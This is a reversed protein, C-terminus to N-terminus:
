VVDNFAVNNAHPSSLPLTGNEANLQSDHYTVSLDPDGGTIDLDADTLNFVYFGDNDDDCEILPLPNNPIPLSDVEILVNQSSDFCNINDVRELRIYITESPATVAYPSTLPGAGTDADAQSSHYTVNFLVPNQGNLVQADFEASLDVEEDGTADQDCIFYPNPSVAGAIAGEFIIDFNATVFCAGTLDELRIYITENTGTITYAAPTGIPATNTNADAQSNHYSINFDAPNQGGLVIPTNTTLDFIGPTAGDDCISLDIPPSAIVPSTIYNIDVSDIGPCLPDSPDIVEVSYTGSNPSTVLYTTNTAGAIPAANLFWQYTFTPDGQDADLLVDAGSDCDTVDPGLDVIFPADVTVLVDDTLIVIDGNCTNTYTVRATFIESGGAPCVNITDSTGIVTGTSDLWEFVYTEVGDPAFSWAENSATWPSDSTNRGPPVYALNGANNQIGLAAVGGQWSGCVPKELMYIEIVNSFEYLVAMHTARLDNCDYMPVAYYAVVLVRNPYAGLIEWAIENSSGVSPDIDHVPTFINAEGLADNSNNPLNESFGWANSGAGTDGADVDFRIVGNSGVQFQTELNGFFCFDFPLSEVDHWADDITTNVSNALGNFPFPPNGTGDPSYPISEITYNTSITEFIELYDATINTCGGSGCPIVVDPGADVFLSGPGQAFNNQPILMVLLIVLLPLPYYKKM